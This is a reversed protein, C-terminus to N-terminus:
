RLVGAAFLVKAKNLILNYKSQYMDLQAKRAEVERDLLDTVKLIGAKFRNETITLAEDAAEVRKGAAELQKQAALVSYYGDKVDAEIELKKDSIKDLLEQYLSKQERVANYDSFGNFLNIRVQAGVTYGNGSNGFIRDDNWQYNAFASVEPLYEAKAKKIEYENVRLYEEMSKLDQRSDLGLRLYHDLDNKFEGNPNGWAVDFDGEVGVVRQLFSKGVAVQKEAERIAGENMLMYSQAVLLDSKVLMGNDYFHKSTKYYEQNRQYSKRTVDLAREALAVGYFAQNLNFLIQQKVRQLVYESAKIMQRAQQIGYYIKGKMYIPQILEVKTGYNIVSNPDKMENMFYSMDFNGQSIKAFAANGPDNTNIGTEDVNIKPLYGGRAQDYRYSAALLAQEYAMIMRNHELALEKAKAFTLEGAYAASSCLSMVLLIILYRMEDEV